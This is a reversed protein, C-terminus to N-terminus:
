IASNKGHIVHPYPEKTADHEPSLFVYYLLGRTEMGTFEERGETPTRLPFLRVAMDNPLPKYRNMMRLIRPLHPAHSIIAIEKGAKHLIDPLMFRKIQDSTRLEKQPVTHSPDLELIHAKEGPIIVGPRTLARKAAANEVETGNYIISPGHSSLLSKAKQKRKEAENIPGRGATEGSRLEAIKRALFAAYDLRARDMGRAWKYNKYRDDKVPQEYTGPGSFVWLALINEAIAPTLADTAEKPDACRELEEAEDLSAKILEKMETQPVERFEEHEALAAEFVTEVQESTSDENRTPQENINM